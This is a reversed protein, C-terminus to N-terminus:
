ALVPLERIGCMELAARVAEPARGEFAFDVDSQKAQRAAAWFLQAATVDVGTVDELSIRLRGGQKLGDALIGKLEAASGIDIAGQLRIRSLDDYQEVSVPV